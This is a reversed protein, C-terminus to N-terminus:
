HKTKGHSHGHDGMAKSKHDMKHDAHGHSHKMTGMPGAAGIKGVKVTVQQKGGNEFVVTLPFSEGEKLKRKLGMLMVHNGGPQLTVSGGAPVNINEVHRMRMIEGDMKHTHFEARNAVDAIVDVVKVDSKSMNSLTFYAAGNRSVSARAWPKEVMVKNGHMKQMAHDKMHMKHNKMQDAAYVPSGALIAAAISLTIFKKMVFEKWKEPV